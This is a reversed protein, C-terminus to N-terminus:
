SLREKMRYLFTVCTEETKDCHVRKVSPCVFPCFLRPLVTRQTYHLMCYQLARSFKDM